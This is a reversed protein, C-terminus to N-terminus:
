KGWVWKGLQMRWGWVCVSNRFPNGLIGVVAVVVAVGGLVAVM